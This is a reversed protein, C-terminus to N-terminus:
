DTVSATASPCYNASAGNALRGLITAWPASTPEEGALKYQGIPVRCIQYCYYVLTNGATTYWIHGPNSLDVARIPTPIVKLVTRQCCHLRWVM